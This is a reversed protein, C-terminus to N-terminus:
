DDVDASSDTVMVAPSATTLTLSLESEKPLSVVPVDDAALDTVRVLLPVAATDIAEMLNVPPWASSKPKDDLHPELRAALALQVTDTVKLGTELPAFDALMLMVSLAVPDGCVTAKVPVPVVPLEPAVMLTLGVESANPSSFTPLVADALVTVMVLLPLAVTVNLEILRDPPCASSKVSVLVQPDVTAAFALQLTEMVKLGTDAPALAPLM